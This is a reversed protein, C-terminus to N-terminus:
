HETRLIEAIEESTFRYKERCFECMVHAGGDAEVLGEMEQAGVLALTSAARERSCKCHFRLPRVDLVKLEVGPGVVARVLSEPTSTTGDAALLETLLGERLRHRALELLPAGETAPLAQLLVGASVRVRLDEDLLTECAIASDIQESAMLYHQVDTDIEGDVIETQGSFHEKLGLDRVLGLVGPTGVFRGLAVRQNPAAPVSVQPHKIFARLNGDSSTDVTIAGLPGGGSLQLTVRELDKTLTALLAGATAARGLAAAAGGVAEHRRAAERATETTIAAVARVALTPLLCRAIRDSTSV